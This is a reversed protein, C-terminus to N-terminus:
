RTRARCDGDLRRAQEMGRAVRRSPLVSADVYAAHGPLRALAEAGAYSVQAKTRPAHSDPHWRDQPGGGSIRLAQAGAQRSPPPCHGATESRRLIGVALFSHILELT